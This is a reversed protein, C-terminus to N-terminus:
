DMPGAALAEEQAKTGANSLEILVDGKQVTQGEKVHLASVIGGEKHQVSQRHGEVSVEGQAYVASDLRALASWGLFVIFFAGAIAAGARVENHGDDEAPGAISQESM